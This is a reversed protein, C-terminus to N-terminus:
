TRGRSTGSPSTRARLHARGRGAPADRRAQAPRGPQRDAAQRLDGARPLVGRDARAVPGRHRLRARRARDARGRVARRDPLLRHEGRRGPQRGAGARRRLVARRHRLLALGDQAAVPRRHVRAHRGRRRAAVGRRPGPGGTRVATTVFDARVGSTIFTKAGNVVYYSATACRPPASARSTPAAARSPSRSRASRRAPWPRGSSGTSWTPTAPACDRHAAARHRQHVARGDAREVRGGRVDGGPPRGLGHLDGGEGGVETPSPSGSCARSARPGTCSARSRAPTRGSRSTRRWRAACSSPASSVSARRDSADALLDEQVHVVRSRLWEGLGKAQPDFRTSAAVGQGLLGRIIVNVAGLHPLVYVEVDLDAAEPVLERVKRPSVFKALWTVRADYLEQPDATTPWGCVSTPTAARTAPGPTCSRAWRCGATRGLRRARPVALRPPRDDPDVVSFETPDAVVERRGDAHVVTHEVRRASSTSRGTSATRRPSSRAAHDDHVGPVVGARAGGGPRHVGPRGARAAPGHRHVAAPDLRGGRHRRGADADRGAVLRGRTATLSPTLQSRVWEAKEEVDLGTLVFEVQNRFGGLENVCVKLREPPAEGHVGTVAVRDTGDQELRISGLDVTVDPNLYHTSQIEYVLQATVTDVTVAGGTGDHKTIVSSGDAAVEAVPFGLPQAPIWATGSWRASGRSTAAPRRPAASSSTARSWPAPWSTTRRRRGATTRSRRGSSSARTPSGAPSSSTPAPRDPRGRHRLRRPLRQRDARGRLPGAAPPRRGRRARRGPRPRAGQRGRPGPRRSRRPQARRRQQRDQVGKELALGLCDELQRVFTRAYGLSPDKMTDKGLILM